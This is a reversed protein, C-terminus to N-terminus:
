LLRPLENSTSRRPGESPQNVPGMQYVETEYPQRQHLDRIGTYKFLIQRARVVCVVATLTVSTWANSSHMRILWG